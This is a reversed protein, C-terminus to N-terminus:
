HDGERRHLAKWTRVCNHERACHGEGKPRKAREERERKGKVEGMELVGNLRM